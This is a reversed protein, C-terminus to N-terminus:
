RPRGFTRVRPVEAVTRGRADFLESLVPSPEIELHRRLYRRCLDFQRRAEAVNGMDLHAEIVLRHASERFPDSAVVALGVIVADAARGVRRLATTLAEMGYLHIQRLREREFM